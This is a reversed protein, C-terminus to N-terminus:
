TEDETVDRSGLDTFLSVTDSVTQELYNLPSGPYARDSFRTALTLDVADGPTFSEALRIGTAALLSQLEGPSAPDTPLQTDPLDTLTVVTDHTPWGLEEAVLDAANGIAGVSGLHGAGIVAKAARAPDGSLVVPGVQAVAGDGISVVWGLTEADYTAPRNVQEDAPDAREDVRQRINTAAVVAQRLATQASAPAMEGNAGLVTGADGVVYTSDSVQLDPDVPRREGGLATPGRIGGTWVFLDAALSDDDLSVTEEDAGTVASDTRVTVDRADLERRVADQFSSDFGSAVNEGREVITVDLDLAAADSLAALEGAVQIGSLGGGGVVAQGGPAAMAADRIARADALRKLPIAHEKVAELGYFATEAGLCVAGVDYELTEEDVDRDLPEITAVGADVDVDTVRAQRVTSETLLEELPLTITEALDPYRVLRHLEHQVLHTDSEDVVVLDLDDPGHRELRRAITLGAYGAGLVAIRM